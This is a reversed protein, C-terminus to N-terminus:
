KTSKIKKPIFQKPDYFFQEQAIKDNAWTQCAVEEIESYMKNKWEFRFKWKIIVQDDNIFFPRICKSTVATANELVQQENAVLRAKGIRPTSQNEQMSANDTYYMEIVKDHPITEVAKVFEEVIKTSPM